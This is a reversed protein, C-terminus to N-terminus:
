SVDQPGCEEEANEIITQDEETEAIRASSVSAQDRCGFHAETKDKEMDPPLIEDGRFMDQPGDEHQDAYEDNNVGVRGSKM